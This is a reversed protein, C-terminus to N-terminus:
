GFLFLLAAFYGATLGADFDNERLFKALERSFRSGFNQDWDSDAAPGNWEFNKWASELMNVRLYNWLQVTTWEGLPQFELRENFLAYYKTALANAYRATSLYEHYM